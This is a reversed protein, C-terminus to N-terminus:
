APPAGRVVRRLWSAAVTIAQTTKTEGGHDPHHRQVCARYGATVIEEVMPRVDAPLPEISSPPSEPEFRIRWEREVAGRLPERLDDLGHLWEDPLDALLVGKFKGFPM